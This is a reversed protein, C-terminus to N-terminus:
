FYVEQFYMCSKLIYKIYKESGVNEWFTNRQKIYLIIIKTISISIPPSNCLLYILSYIYMYNSLGKAMQVPFACSVCISMYTYKYYYYYYITSPADAWHLCENNLLQSRLLKNVMTTTWGIQFVRIQTHTNRTQTTTKCWGYGYIRRRGYVCVRACREYAILM